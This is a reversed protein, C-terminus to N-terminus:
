GGAVNTVTRMEKDSGADAGAPVGATLPNAGRGRAREGPIGGGGSGSKFMVTLESCSAGVAGASAEAGGSEARAV